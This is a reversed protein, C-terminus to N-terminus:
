YLFLNKLTFWKFINKSTLDFTRESPFLNYYKIFDKSIITYLIPMINYIAYYKTIFRSYSIKMHQIM